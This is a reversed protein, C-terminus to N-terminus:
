GRSNWAILANELANYKSLTTLNYGTGKYLRENDQLKFLTRPGYARCQKCYVVCHYYEGKTKISYDLKDSGCFPCCKADKSLVSM